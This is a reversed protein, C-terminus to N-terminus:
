PQEELKVLCLSDGLSHCDSHICYKMFGIAPDAPVM